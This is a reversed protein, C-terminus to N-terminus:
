DSELYELAEQYLKYKPHSQGDLRHIDCNHKLDAIKVKRAIPNVKIKKIYDMYPVGKKHTLLDIERCIKEGMGEKMLFNFDYKDGHDEVVDHLLAVITSEEDDMQSALFFPHFVYPYGAKDFDDKHANFCIIYANQIKKSYIM